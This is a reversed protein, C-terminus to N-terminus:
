KRFVRYGAGCVDVGYPDNNDHLQCFGLPKHIFGKCSADERCKKKCLNLDVGSNHRVRVGGGLDDCSETYDAGTEAGTARYVEYATDSIDVNTIQANDYLRCLKPEERFVFAECTFVDNKGHNNNKCHTGCNDRTSADTDAYQGDIDDKSYDYGAVAPAPAAPAPTDVGPDDADATAQTNDAELQAAAVEAPTADPDAALADAKAKATDADAKAKAAKAAAVESPTKPVVPDEKEEGGMMLSAVSSCGCMVMMGVGAVAIAAM